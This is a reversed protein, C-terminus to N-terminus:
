PYSAKVPGILVGAPKFLGFTPFTWLEAERM